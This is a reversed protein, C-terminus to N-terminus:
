KLNVKTPSYANFIRLPKNIGISRRLSNKRLEKILLYIRSEDQNEFNNLNSTNVRNTM